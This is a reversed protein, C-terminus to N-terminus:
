DDDSEDDSSEDIEEDSNVPEDEKELRKIREIEDYINILPLEYKFLDWLLDKLDEVADGEELVNLIDRPSNINDKGYIYKLYNLIYEEMRDLIHEMRIKLVHFNKNSITSPM